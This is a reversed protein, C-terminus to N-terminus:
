SIRDDALAARCADARSTRELLRRARPLQADIPAGSGPVAPDPLVGSVLRLGKRHVNVYYDITLLERQSGALMLRSSPPLAELLLDVTDARGRLEVAAVAPRQKLRAALGASGAASGDAPVATVGAPVGDPNSTVLLVPVAGYWTAVLALLRSYHHGDTVVAIEGMELRLQEWVWLAAAVSPVLASRDLESSAAGARATGSM